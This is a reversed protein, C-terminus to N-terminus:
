PTEFLLGDGADNLRVRKRVTGAGNTLIIGKGALVAEFDLGTELTDDTALRNAGARYFVTDVANTGDGWAFGGNGYWICRANADGTVYGQALIDGVAAARVNMQATFTSPGAQWFGADAIENFYAYKTVGTFAGVTFTPYIELATLRDGNATAVLTPTLVQGWAFGGVASRSGGVAMTQAATPTTGVGVTRAWVDLDDTEVLAPFSTDDTETAPLSLTSAKFKSSSRGVGVTITTAFAPSWLDFDCASTYDVTLALTGGVGGVFRLDKITSRALVTTIGNTKLAFNAAGANYLTFSGNRDHIYQYRGVAIQDTLLYHVTAQGVEWLTGIWNVPGTFGGGPGTGRDVYTVCNVGTKNGVQVSCGVFTYGAGQDMIIPTANDYPTYFTVHHMVNFTNTSEYPTGHTSSVNALGNGLGTFFTCYGNTANDNCLEVESWHNIESALSVVSAVTFSGDVRLDRLENNRCEQPHETRRALLVACQYPVSGTSIRLGELTVYSRGICDLLIGGAATGVIQTAFRGAGVFALSRSPTLNVTDSADLATVNYTGRPFYVVGGGSMAAVSDIATQIAATDDTVGDGKAGTDVVSVMGTFTHLGIKSGLATGGGPMTVLAQGYGRNLDEAVIREFPVSM